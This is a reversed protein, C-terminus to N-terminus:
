ARREKRAFEAVVAQAVAAAPVALIAGPAGLLAGGGLVSITIVFPHVKVERGLLRPTVLYGIVNNVVTYAIVGALALGPTVSYGALAITVATAWFGVVPIIEALAVAVGLFLVMPFGLIQLVVSMVSGMVLCVLSQGRIYARLAPDIADFVRTTETRLNEPVFSLVSSRVAVHDALLYFALLPLLALGILQGINGFIGGLLSMSWRQLTGLLSAANGGPGGSPGLLGGWGRVEMFRRAEQEVRAITEPAAAVFHGIEQALRPVAEALSWGVLVVIALIVVFAAPGRPLHRNGPLPVREVLSVIPDLAYALLAAFGVLMLIDRLMWALWALILLAVTLLSQRM